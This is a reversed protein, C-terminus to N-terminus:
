SALIACETLQIENVHVSHVLLSSGIKKNLIKHAHMHMHHIYLDYSHMRMEPILKICSHNGSNRM